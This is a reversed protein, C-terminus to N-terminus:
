RLGPNIFKDIATPPEDYVDTDCYGEEVLFEIFETLLDKKYTDFCNELQRMFHGAEELEITRRALTFTQNGHTFKIVRSGGRKEIQVKM